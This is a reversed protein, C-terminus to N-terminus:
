CALAAGGSAFEAADGRAGCVLEPESESSDSSDSDAESESESESSDSESEDSSEPEPVKKKSKKEDKEKIIKKSVAKAIDKSKSKPTQAPKTVGGSKVGNLPTAATAKSEKTKSKAM